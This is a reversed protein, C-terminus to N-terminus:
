RYAPLVQTRRREAIRAFALLALAGGGVLPLDLWVSAPFLRFLTAAGYSLFLGVCFVQLSNRGVAALALAGWRRLVVPRSPVLAAVVYALALAHLLRPLALQQKGMIAEPDLGPDPLVGHGVLRVWLGFGLVAVAAALPGPRLTVARGHLLARRGLWAGLLFLLQWAFPNFAIDAGGLDPPVWGSVQVALYV